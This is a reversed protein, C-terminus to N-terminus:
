FFTPKIVPPFIHFKSIYNSTTIMLTWAAWLQGYFLWLLLFNCSLRSFFLWMMTSTEPTKTAKFGVSFWFCLTKHVCCIVHLYSVDSLVRRKNIFLMHLVKLPHSSCCQNNNYSYKIKVIKLFFLSNIHFVSHFHPQVTKLYETTMYLYNNSLNISEVVWLLQKSNLSSNSSFSLTAETWTHAKGKHESWVTDTKFCLRIQEDEFYCFLSCCDDDM